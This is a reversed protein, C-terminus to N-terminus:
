EGSGHFGIHVGHDRPNELTGGSFLPMDTFLEEKSDDINKKLEYTYRRKRFIEEDLSQARKVSSGFEPEDM